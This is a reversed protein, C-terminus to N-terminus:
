PVFCRLTFEAFYCMGFESLTEQFHSYSLINGVLFLLDLCSYNFNDQRVDSTTYQTYKHTHLSTHGPLNCCENFNYKNTEIMRFLLWLWM